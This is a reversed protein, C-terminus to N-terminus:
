PELTLRGPALFGMDAAQWMQYWSLRSSADLRLLLSISAGAPEDRVVPPLLEGVDPSVLPPHSQGFTHILRYRRVRDALVSAAERAASANNYALTFLWYREAAAGGQRYGIGLHRYVPLGPAEALQQRLRERQEPDTAEELLAKIWEGSNPVYRSAGDVLVAGLLTTDPLLAPDDMTAAVRRITDDDALSPRSGRAADVAEQVVATAPGAILLRPALVVRNLHALAVRGIPDRPDFQDDEFHALLRAQANLSSPTATYGAEALRRGLAEPDIAGQVVNYHHPPWGVELEYDVDFVDFGFLQRWRGTDGLGLYNSSPIQRGVDRWWAEGGLAAATEDGDYGPPRVIGGLRKFEALNTYVLHDTGVQDGARPAYALLQVLPRDSGSQALARSVASHVALAAWGSGISLAMAALLALRMVRQMPM